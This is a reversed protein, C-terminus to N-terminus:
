PSHFSYRTVVYLLPCIDFFISLSMYLFMVATGCVYGLESLVVLGIYVVSHLQDRYVNDQRKILSFLEIARITYRSEINHM